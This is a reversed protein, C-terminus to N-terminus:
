IKANQNFQKLYMRIAERVLESKSKGTKASLETLEEDLDSPIKISVTRYSSVKHPVLINGSYRSVILTYKGLNVLEVM